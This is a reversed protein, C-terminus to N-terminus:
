REGIWERAYYGVSLTKLYEVWSINGVIVIWVQTSKETILLQTIEALM